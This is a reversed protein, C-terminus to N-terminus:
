WYCAELLTLHEDKIAAALLIIVQTVHLSDIMAYYYNRELLHSRQGFDCNANILGACNFGPRRYWTNILQPMAHIRQSPRLKCKKATAYMYDNATANM